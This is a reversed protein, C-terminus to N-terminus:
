KTLSVIEKVRELEVAKVVDGDQKLATGVIWATAMNQLPITEMNAGSGVIIPADPVVGRVRTLDEVKTVGGTGQGSVILADALGRNWADKAEQELTWGEEFPMAHKVGVDAMIAVDSGLMERYRLTEAAKGEILGQDTIMAGIHVNIRIFQAGTATAIALAAKADNRLVNVGLPLDSLEKISRVIRTMASITVADVNKQFPVDGFNEILIADVGGSILNRADAMADREVADIDGSFSPSGPLPKLHVMGIIGGPVKRRM